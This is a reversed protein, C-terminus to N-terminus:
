WILLGRLELNHETSCKIAVSKAGHSAKKSKGVSVYLSPTQDSNLVLEPPIACKKITEDVNQLYHNRCEDYLGQPVPPCSTTAMRRNLRM